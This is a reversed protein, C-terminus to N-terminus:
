TGFKWTQRRSEAHQHHGARDPREVRKGHKLQHGLAHIRQVDNEGSQLQVKRPGNAEEGRPNSLSIASRLATFNWCCTKEENQISESCVVTVYADVGASDPGDAPLIRACLMRQGLDTPKQVYSASNSGELRLEADIARGSFTITKWQSCSAPAKRVATLESVRHALAYLEICTSVSPTGSM